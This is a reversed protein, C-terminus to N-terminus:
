LPDIDVFLCSTVRYSSAQCSSHFPTSALDLVVETFPQKGLSHRPKQGTAKTLPTLVTLMTNSAMSRVTGRRDETLKPLADPSRRTGPGDRTPRADGRVTGRRDETLKPLADPSRRTGPGDREQVTGRQDPMVGYRGEGTRLSSPSRRTSTDDRPRGASVSAQDRATSSRSDGWFLSAALFKVAM